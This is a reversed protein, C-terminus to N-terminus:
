SLQALPKVVREYLTRITKQFAIGQADDFGRLLEGGCYKTYVGRSHPLVFPFDYDAQLQEVPSYPFVNNLIGVRNRCFSGRSLIPLQAELFAPGRADPSIVEFVAAAKELAYLTTVDRLLDSSCDFVLYDALEREAFFRALQRVSETQWGAQFDLGNEGGILALFGLHNNQPHIHVAPKVREESVPGTLLRGASGAAGSESFPLLVPLMPTVTDASLVIVNGGKATLADALACTVLSKGAGSNGWVALETM